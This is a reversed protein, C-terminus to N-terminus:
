VIDTENAQDEPEENLAKAFQVGRLFALADRQQTPDFASFTQLAEEAEIEQDANLIKDTTLM